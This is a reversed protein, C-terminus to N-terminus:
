VITDKVNEYITMQGSRGPHGGYPKDFTPLAIKAINYHECIAIMSTTVDDSLGSNIIIYINANPNHKQLHECMYAFAPRFNKLDNETWNSYKYEGIPVGAWSDNTGGFVAIVDPRGINKMRNLFSFSSANSGDYGTNCIPSGSFSNNYELLFDNNEILKYWWMDSVDTTDENENEGNYFCRNTEPTVFGGYTSYSDGLISIRKKIPSSSAHKLYPVVNNPRQACLVYATNQTTTFFLDSTAFSHGFLFNGFLDYECIIAYTTTDYRTNPLVSVFDSICRYGAANNSLKKGDATSLGVDNLWVCEELLDKNKPENLVNRFEDIRTNIAKEVLKMQNRVATGASDYTAGDAGIRIDQLEADGTTSGEALSTFADIRAREVAIEAKREAAETADASKRETEEAVIAANLDSTKSTFKADTKGYATLLQQYVNATPEVATGNGVPAGNLLKFRVLTSPKVVNEDADVGRVGIFIYGPDTLVEGPITCADNTLVVEYVTEYKENFFVASKGLGDWETSFNVEITTDNVGGSAIVPVENAILKKDVCDLKVITSAM